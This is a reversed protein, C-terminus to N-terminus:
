QNDGRLFYREVGEFFMTLSQESGTNNETEIIIKSGPAFYRQRMILKRRSATGLILGVRERLASFYLGGQTGFRILLDADDSVPVYSVARLFFGARQDIPQLLNPQITPSAAIVKTWVYTYPLDVYSVGEPPRPIGCADLIMEGATLLHRKHDKM